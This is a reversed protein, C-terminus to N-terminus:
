KKIKGSLKTKSWSSYLTDKGSKKYSRIRVYYKKGSKLKKFTYSTKTLKNSKVNKKFKKDTSIQVQYGSAKKDKAWKVTLKRGKVAKASKVSPKKPSVKVTVKKSAEGAKITIVAVGTNKITVTGTNQDVAAIQPKSSAFVMKGNSSANIKFSKAGYAVNYVTKPCTISIAPNQGQDKAETITFDATKSGTYKGKGAATVIATGVKINNSYSVTYDTNLVLTKDNLKVTVSPTKATGDYTYSAPSLTISAKSLDFGVETGGDDTGGDSGTSGDGTSGGDDTGGNSGGNGSGGDGPTGGNGPGGDGSTGGDGTGNDGGTSGGNGSDGGTNGGNGPEVIEFSTTISGAYGAKGTITVTATGVDVNDSYFVTYDMNLILQNGDLMVTVAPTKATGDYVYRSQSLKVEAGFIDTPTYNYHMEAKSLVAAVDASKGIKNWEAETGTFYINQLPCASFAAAGIGIISKPMIVTSLSSCSAFAWTGINEVDQPIEVGVLGMCNQFMGEGIRDASKPLTVNMLYYCQTFMNDGLTVRKSGPIFTASTMKQCQYFAAAGVEGVSAPLTVSTLSTARFANQCITEVGESIIVSSLNQCEQFASDGIIKVKSPITVSIISSSKFAGNGIAEVSSSIEASLVGCSGFAWTGISSVGDGIVIKRIQDRYKSWPQEEISGFDQMAGNGSVTLTGAKTLSWSLEGFIGDDIVKGAEPDDPPIYGKPYRTIYHSTDKMVTEKSITRGWHVKGEHDGTNINGEAVVIGVDNVELVIVTHTDTNMRLIDGPKIDEFTFEGPAYMEAPLSGFATDSLEFAFAVCGVASINKGDLPGGKWQYYGKSDSYPEYDTWPTGEKFKDQDKLAIMSEYVEKPTPIEAGSASLRSASEEMLVDEQQSFDGQGAYAVSQTSICLCLTLIVSLIRKKM